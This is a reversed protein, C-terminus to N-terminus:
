ANNYCRESEGKGVCICQSVSRTDPFYSQVIGYLFIVHGEVGLEIFFHFTIECPRSVAVKHRAISRASSETTIVEGIPSM